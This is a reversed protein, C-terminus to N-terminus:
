AAEIPVEPFAEEFKVRQESPDCATFFEVAEGEDVPEIWDSEGEWQTMHLKFYSGKRTRYLFTNTGSREWSHGDWYDDGCLLKSTQTSYRKGDVTQKFNLPNM